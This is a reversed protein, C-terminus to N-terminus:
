VIDWPVVLKEAFAGPRENVSYAGQLFGAVRDDPTINAVPVEAGWLRSEEQLMGELPEDRARLRICSLSRILQISLYQKSVCWYRLPHRLPHHSMAFTQWRTSWM